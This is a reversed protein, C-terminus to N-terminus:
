RTPRTAPQTAAPSVKRVVPVHLKAGSKDVVPDALADIELTEGTKANTFVAASGSRKIPRLGIVRWDQFPEPLQKGKVFWGLLHYDRDVVWVVTHSAEESEDLTM